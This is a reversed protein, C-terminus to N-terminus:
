WDVTFYDDSEDLREWQQFKLIVVENDVKYGYNAPVTYSISEDNADVQGALFWGGSNEKGGGHLYIRIEENMTNNQWLITYTNGREWTEGGNPYLVIIPEDVREHISTPTKKCANLLFIIILLILLNIFVLKKVM